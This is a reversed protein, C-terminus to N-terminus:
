QATRLRAKGERFAYSGESTSMREGGFPALPTRPPRRRRSKSRRAAENRLKRAPAGRQSAKSRRGTKYERPFDAGTGAPTNLTSDLVRGASDLLVERALFFGGGHAEQEPDTLFALAAWAEQFSAGHGGETM